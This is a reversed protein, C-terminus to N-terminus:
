SDITGTTYHTPMRGQSPRPPPNSEGRVGKLLPILSSPHLIFSSLHPIFSFCEYSHTRIGSTDIVALQRNPSCRSFTADSDDGRQSDKKVFSDQSRRSGTPNCRNDTRTRDDVRNSEPPQLEIPYLLADSWNRTARGFLVQGVAPESYM